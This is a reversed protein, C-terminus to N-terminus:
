HQIRSGAQARPGTGNSSHLRIPSASRKRPERAIRECLRQIEGDDLPKYTGGKTAISDAARAAPYSLWRRLAALITGCERDTLKVVMSNVRKRGWDGDAWLSITVCNYCKAVTPHDILRDGNLRCWAFSVERNRLPSTAQKRPIAVYASSSHERSLRLRSWIPAHNKGLHPQWEAM